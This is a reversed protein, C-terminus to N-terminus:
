SWRALVEEVARRGDDDLRGSRVALDVAERALTVYAPVAQPAHESLARLNREVTGGDGRVVPGTLAREPGLDRVNDLTARQLQSMARVPDPVGAEAFLRAAIDSLVVLDNSAFVAAAHYLARLGEELRFPEGMVDDAVREAVAYGQEDDATLAFTSGPILDIARAVDPFTQLPHIALRRAGAERAPELADLGVAGSLHAAFTEEGFAQATALDRVTSGILDDPLGLIVLEGVRAAEAPEMVPVGPLYSAARSRTPGRGSVAAVHHGARILLVAM